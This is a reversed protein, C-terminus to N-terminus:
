SVTRAVSQGRELVRRGLRSDDGRLGERKVLVSAPAVFGLDVVVAQSSGQTGGESATSTVAVLLDLRLDSSIRKLIMMQLSRGRRPVIRPPRLMGAPIM